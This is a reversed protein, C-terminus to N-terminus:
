YLHKATFASIIFQQVHQTSNSHGVALMERTLATKYRNLKPNVETLYGVHNLTQDLAGNPM